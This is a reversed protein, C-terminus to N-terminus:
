YVLVSYLVSCVCFSVLYFWGVLICFLLCLVDSLDVEVDIVALLLLTLCLIIIAM